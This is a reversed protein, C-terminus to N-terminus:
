LKLILKINNGPLVFPRKGEIKKSWFKTYMEGREWETCAGLMENEKV